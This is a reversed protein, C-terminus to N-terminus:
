PRPKRSSRAPRGTLSARTPWAEWSGAPIERRLRAIRLRIAKARRHAVSLIFGGVLLSFLFLLM